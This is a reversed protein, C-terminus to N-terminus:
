IYVVQWKCEPVLQVLKDTRVKMGIDIGYEKSEVTSVWHSIEKPKDILVPRGLEKWWEVIRLMKDNVIVDAVFKNSMNGSSVSYKVRKFYSKDVRKSNQLDFEWKRDASSITKDCVIFTEGYDEVSLVIFYPCFMEQWYDGAQPTDFHTQNKAKQIDARNKSEQIQTESM